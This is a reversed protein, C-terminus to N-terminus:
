ILSITKTELYKIANQLLTIDDEFRGIGNNCNMCLLGRVENTIHDHDIALERGSKCTKNCIACVGNQNELIKNHEETSLKYKKLRRKHEWKQVIDPNNTNWKRVAKIRKEPNEKYLNASRIKACKRCHRLCNKTIYTNEITYQHNNICHTKKSRM